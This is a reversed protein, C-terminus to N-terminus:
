VVVPVEYGGLEFVDTLTYQQNSHVGGYGKCEEDDLRVCVWGQGGSCTSGQPYFWDGFDGGRPCSEDYNPSCCDNYRDSSTAYYEAGHSCSMQRGNGDKAFIATGNKSMIFNYGYAAGDTWPETCDKSSGEFNPSWISHILNCSVASTWHEAFSQFSDHSIDFGLEWRLNIPDITPLVHKALPLTYDRNCISCMYGTSCYITVESTEGVNSLVNFEPGVNSFWTYRSALTLNNSHGSVDIIRQTGGFTLFDYFYRIFDPCETRELHAASPRDGAVPRNESTFYLSLRMNWPKVDIPFYGWDPEYANGGSSGSKDFAIDYEQVWVTTNTKHIIPTVSLPPILWAAATAANLSIITGVTVEGGGSDKNACQGYREPNCCNETLNKQEDTATCYYAWGCYGNELCYQSPQPIGRFAGIVNNLNFAFDVQVTENAELSVPVGLEFVYANPHYFSPLMFLAEEAPGTFMDM